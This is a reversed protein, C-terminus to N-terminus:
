EAAERKNLHVSMGDGTVKEPELILTRGVWADGNVLVGEALDEIPTIPCYIAKGNEAFYLYRQGDETHAVAEYPILVCAERTSTVIKAKASLGLRMSADVEGADLAVIGEVVSEGGSNSAAASSIESLTGCYMDKDFGAGSIQVTQGVALKPLLKERLMVRVQLGTRPAITVCPVGADLLTGDMADVSLVIGDVPSTVSGAMATLELADSMRDDGIQTRKTAEKDIVILSEGATVQQGVKVSVNQVVCNVPPYVLVTEGAEIVGNCSVTEEVTQAQLGAAEVTVSTKEGDKMAGFVIAAVGVIVPFILRKKM